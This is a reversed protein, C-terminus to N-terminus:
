RARHATPTIPMSGWATSPAASRRTASGLLKWTTLLAVRTTTPLGSSATTLTAKAQETLWLIVSRSMTLTTSMSLRATKTTGTTFYQTLTNPAQIITGSTGWGSGQLTLSEDIVQQDVYTGPKVLIVDGNQAVNLARQIQMGPGVVFQNSALDYVVTYPALAPNVVAAGLAEEVTAFFAVGTNYPPSAEPSYVKGVLGLGRAINDLDPTSGPGFKVLPAVTQGSFVVTGAPATLSITAGAVDEIYLGKPTNAVTNTGTFNVYFNGVQTTYIAVGAWGESTGTDHVNVNELTAAGTNTLAVGNRSVDSIEVDRIVANSVGNLDLGGLPQGGPTVTKGAGKIKVNEITFESIGSVHVMFYQASGANITINKITVTNGAGAIGIGYGAVTPELIVLNRDVGRITISKTINLNERYTGAAVIITDGSNAANIAAQITPYVTPVYLEAAFAFASWLLLSLVCVKVLRNCVEM